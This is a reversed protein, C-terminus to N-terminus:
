NIKDSGQVMGYVDNGYAKFYGYGQGTSVTTGRSVVTSAQYDDDVTKKSESNTTSNGYLIAQVDIHPYIYPKSGQEVTSVNLQYSAGAITKRTLTLRFTLKYGSNGTFDKPPPTTDASATLCLAMATVAALVAATIRRIMKKM